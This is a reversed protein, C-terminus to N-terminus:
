PSVNIVFSRKQNPSQLILVYNGPNLGLQYQESYSSANRLLRRDVLAGTATYLSAAVDTIRNVDVLVQFNGQNPNPAIVVNLFDPTVPNFGPITTSDAHVTVYKYVLDQCDGKQAIMSLRIDGPSLFKFIYEDNNQSIYQVSDSPFEWIVADPIPWSVEIAAVEQGVVVDTAVLFFAVLPEELINVTITDRFECGFDNIAHIFYEGSADIIQLLDMSSYNGPGTILLDIDQDRLDIFVSTGACPSSNIDNFDLSFEPGPNVVFSKQITCGNADSVSVEYTGPMVSSLLLNSSGNSWSVTFEGVGGAPQIVISGLPLSDCAPSTVTGSVTITPSTHQLSFAREARCGNADLIVLQYNGSSLGTISPSTTELEESWIYRFPPTGGLHTVTIAGTTDEQCIPDTVNSGLISFLSPSQLSVSLTRQCGAGDTITLLYTGSPLNELQSSTAGNSWSYSLAGSGGSAQITISGNSDGFCLPQITNTSEVVIPVSATVEFSKIVHCNAADTITVEFIGQALNSVTAGQTLAPDNWQFQFPAQGGIPVVTATGNAVGVCIRDIVNELSADFLDAQLIEFDKTQACLNSDTVTVSYLGPALDTANPQNLNSNHSWSFQLMGSGGNVSISIAGNNAEFCLENTIESAIELAESDPLNIELIQICQTVLNTITVTYHGAALMTALSNDGIAPVSWQYSVPDSTGLVGLQISGNMDGFCSPREFDLVTAIFDVEGLLPISLEASCSNGDTITVEYIGASLQLAFPTNGISALNWEYNWDPQTQALVIAGLSQGDCSPEEILGVTVVPSPHNSLTISQTRFCGQEDTITFAYEGSSLGTLQSSTDGTSWQYTFQGSWNSPSVIEIEGNNQGDCGEQILIQPPDFLSDLLTITEVIHCGNELTIDIQYIGAGLDEQIAQQDFVLSGDSISSWHYTAGLIPAVAISGNFANCSPSNIAIEVEPSEPEGITFSAISFCGNEDTVTVSYTGTPLQNAVNTNLSPSHSWNYVFSGSGGIVTVQASGDALNCASIDNSTIDVTLDENSAITYEVTYLCGNEDTITIEYGGAPLQSASNGNVSSDHSWQYFFQQGPISPVISISGTASACESDVGNVIFSVVEDVEISWYISDSCGLLDEIRVFYIGEALNDAIPGTLTASHGWTYTIEGHGGQVGVEIFGNPESCNINQWDDVFITPGASFEVVASVDSSCGNLDMISASYTGATLGLLEFASSATHQWTILANELTNPSTVSVTGNSLDCNEPSSVIAFVQPAIYDISFPLIAVCGNEDTATVTYNGAALLTAQPGNLANDHSWHYVISGFLPDVSVEVMGTGDICVSPVNSVLEIEPGSSDSVQASLVQQCNNNDVVTVTYSGSPLQEAQNGTVGSNHSWLFSYPEEGGSVAVVIGGDNQGCTSPIVQDIVVVPGTADVVAFTTTGFCGVADTVTVQYMGSMLQQASNSNLVPDHSWAYSLNGEGNAVTFSAQVDNAICPNDLITLNQIEPSLTSLVSIDAIAECQNQDTVTVSYSGEVLGTAFPSNLAAQHSWSYNYPGNGAVEVVSATGVPNTCFAPTSAIQLVEPGLVQGLEIDIAAVCGNADTSTATYSGATLHEAHTSNLNLDHNWSFSMPLTGGVTRVTISGVAQDCLDDTSNQVLITQTPLHAIQFVRQRNCGNVDTITVLYNGATLDFIESAVMGNSWQYSFPASGQVELSIAGNGDECLSNQLQVDAVVPAPNFSIQILTDLVCGRSDTLTVGYSGAPLGSLSNTNLFANHSWRYQFPTTGGLPSLQISGNFNSCNSNSIQANLSQPGQIDELVIEKVYSCGFHDTLTYTYEGPFLNNVTSGTMGNSWALQYPATGGFPFVQISGNPLTCASNTVVESATPPPLETVSRSITRTCFNADTVTVTYTGAFLQSAIPGNLQSNHSWSYNFPATGTGSQISVSVSGTNGMCATVTSTAQLTPGGFFDISILIENSCGNIDTVTLSYEGSELGTVLNSNAESDHSWHFQFPGTGLVSVLISGNGDTCLAPNAEEIVIEPGTEFPLIISIEQTCNNQDTVTLLYTGANLGIFIGNSNSSLTSNENSLEYSYPGIGGVGVISIIGDGRDCYEPSVNIINVNLPPFNSISASTQALCNNADFVQVTHIGAPVNQFVPDTLLPDSNWEFSYMGVGGTATASLTGTPSDCDADQVLEIFAELLPPDTLVLGERDIYCGDADLVRLTYSGATLAPIDFPSAGANVEPGNQLSYRYPVQGGTVAVRILGNSDEFCLPDFVITNMNLSRENTLEIDYAALCGESDSVILEYNGAALGNFIGTQNTVGNLSFSLDGNEPTFQTVTVTGNALTSCTPNTFNYNATVPIPGEIPFVLLSLCNAEDRIYAGVTSVPLNDLSFVTGAPGSEFLHFDPDELVFWTVGHSGVGGFPEISVSGNESYSCPSVNTKQIHADITSTSGVQVPRFSECGRSDTIILNFQNTSLGSWTIVNGEVEEADLDDFNVLYPPTGGNITLTIVGDLDGVCLNPTVQVSTTIAPISPMSVVHESECGQLDRVCIKYEGTLGALFDYNGIGYEDSSYNCAQEPSGFFVQFPPYGALIDLSFIGPATLCNDTIPASVEVNTNILIDIMPIAFGFTAECENSDKIIITNSTTAETFISNSSFSGGNFSYNFSETGGSVGVVEIMGNNGYCNIPDGINQITAQIGPTEELTIISSQITCGDFNQIEVFYDGAPAYFFSTKYDVWETESHILPTNNEVKYLTYIFPGTDGTLTLDIYGNGQGPCTENIGNVNIIQFPESETITLSVSNSACFSNGVPRISFQYTGIPLDYLEITEEDENVVIDQYDEMINTRLQIARGNRGSIQLRVFRDNSNCDPATIRASNIFLDDLAPIEVNIQVQCSRSDKAYVTHSASQLFTFSNNSAFPGAPDISYTYPGSGGSAQVVISGDAQSTCSAPQIQLVNLALPQDQTISFDQTVTCNLADKVRIQYNGAQTITFTRAFNTGAGYDVVLNGTSTFLAFQLGGVGRSGSPVSATVQGASQCASINQIQLPAITIPENPATLTFNGTFFPPPNPDTCSTSRITISHNNGAPLNSIATYVNGQITIDPLNNIKVRFTGSAQINVELSGLGGQCQIHYPIGNVEGLEVPTTTVTPLPLQDVEFSFNQTTVCGTSNTVMATWSGGEMYVNSFVATGEVNQLVFTLYSPSNRTIQVNVPNTNNSVNVTVVGTGPFCLSRVTSISSITPNPRNGITTQIEPSTCDLDPSLQRQTVQVTYSGSPLNMFTHEYETHASNTENTFTSQTTNNRINIRYRSTPNLNNLTVKIEGNQQGQCSARPTVNISSLPLPPPGIFLNPPLNMIGDMTTQGIGFDPERCAWSGLQSFVQWGPNGSSTGNGPCSAIFTANYSVGFEAITRIEDISSNSVTVPNAGIAFKQWWLQGNRFGPARDIAMVMSDGVCFRDQVENNTNTLLLTPEAARFNHVTLEVILEYSYSQDISTAKVSFRGTAPGGSFLSPNFTFKLNQNASAQREHGFTSASFCATNLASKFGYLYMNLVFPKDLNVSCNNSCSYDFLLENLQLTDISGSIRCNRRYGYAGETESQNYSNLNRTISDMSVRYQLYLNEFNGVQANRVRIEVLRMEFRLRPQQAQGNEIVGILLIVLLSAIIKIKRMDKLKLPALISNLNIQSLPHTGRRDVQM